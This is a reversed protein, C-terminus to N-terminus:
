LTAASDGPVAGWTSDSQVLLDAIGRTAPEEEPEEEPEESEDPVEPEPGGDGCFAVGLAGTSV